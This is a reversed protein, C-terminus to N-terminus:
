KVAAVAAPSQSHRTVVDHTTPLDAATWGGGLAAILAISDVLREQHITLASERNTLEAVQATVVTTYDVTGANYENFTIRAAEAAEAVAADEIESEQALIRLGSLNDEVQQVATLVTQRYNAVTGDYAARAALVQDHRQGWDILSDAVQGGLSWYRFPTTFLQHLPSGQFGGAASLSLTPFYAATQIGVKANAAAVTREAEAVDPRRELLTSPLQPPIAPLTMMVHDEFEIHVDSPLKGILVAIAHELQARQVGVDVLQARTADLESQASIVDSRAAVGVAYKNKSIMLTRTYDKVANSLLGNKEDLARLLVYDQALTSQTSLRVAALEAADAVATAVDAEVTRSVKGWIDPEWSAQLSASFTNATTGQVLGASTHAAASKARQASGDVSVTPLFGTRDSRALQRAEEYNAAAAALGLNSIAVQAELDNLVPDQFVEWWPGRPAVDGPQAATWGAAEKFALPAVPAPRKYDPGVACGAALAAAAGALWFATRNWDM